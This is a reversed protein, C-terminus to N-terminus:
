VMVRVGACGVPLREEEWVARDLRWGLFAQLGGLVAASTVAEAVHRGWRVGGGPNVVEVLAPLAGEAEACAGREYSVTGWVCSAGWVAWRTM